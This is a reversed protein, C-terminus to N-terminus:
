NWIIQFGSTSVANIKNFFYLLLDEVANIEEANIVKANFDNRTLKKSYLVNLDPDRVTLPRILNNFQPRATLADNEHAFLESNSGRNSM